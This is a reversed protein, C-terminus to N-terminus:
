GRDLGQGSRPSSPLYPRLQACKPPRPRGGRAERFVMILKDEPLTGIRQAELATPKTLGLDTIFKTFSRVSTREGQARELKALARGLKWRARMRAENIPRM